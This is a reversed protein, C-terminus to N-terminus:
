EADRLTTEILTNIAQLKAQGQPRERYGDALSVQLYLVRAPNCYNMFVESSFAFSEPPNEHLYSRAASEYISALTLRYSMVRYSEEHEEIVRLWVEIAQRFGDTRVAMVSQVFEAKLVDASEKELLLLRKLEPKDNQERWQEIRTIRQDLYSLAADITEPLVDIQTAAALDLCVRRRATAPERLSTPYSAAQEFADAAKDYECLFLLCEGRLFAVLDRQRGPYLREFNALRILGARFPNYGGADRPWPRRYFDYLTHRKIEGALILM